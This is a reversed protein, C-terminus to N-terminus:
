TVFINMRKHSALINYCKITYLFVNPRHCFPSPFHLLMKYIWFACKSSPLLTYPFQSTPVSIQDTSAASIKSCPFSFGSV